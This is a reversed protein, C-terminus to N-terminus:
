GEGSEGRTVMPNNTHHVLQPGIHDVSQSVRQYQERNNERERSQACQRREIEQNSEAKPGKCKNLIAKEWFMWM